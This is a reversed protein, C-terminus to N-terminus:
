RLGKYIELTKEANKKWCFKEAHRIGYESYKRYQETSLMLSEIGEVMGEIDDPEYSMGRDGVAEPLSAVNSVIAPTGCKMAEVPPWGFGEYWSPFLVCDVGNYLAVMENQTLNQHEKVAVSRDINIKLREWEDTSQGIKILAIDGKHKKSLKNIVKICTEHNKYYQFGCILINWRGEFGYLKKCDDRRAQSYQEYVESLGYYVVTIKDPDLRCYEVLDSKTSESIALIHDYGRYFAMSYETMLPRRINKLGKAYGKFSIYPILDHCTLVWAGHRKVGKLHAYQHDMVHYVDYGKPLMLPYHIYREFRARLGNEKGFGQAPVPRFQNVRALGGLGDALNEAYVEMSVRKDELFGKCLLIKM